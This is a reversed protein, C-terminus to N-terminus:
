GILLTMVQSYVRFFIAYQLVLSFNFNLPKPDLLEITRTKKLWFTSGRITARTSVGGRTRTTRAQRYNGTTQHRPRAEPTRSTVLLVNRRKENQTACIHVDSKPVTCTLVRGISEYEIRLRAPQTHRLRSRANNYSRNSQGPIFHVKSNFIIVCVTNINRSM